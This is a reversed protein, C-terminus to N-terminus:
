GSRDYLGTNLGTEDFEAKDDLIDLAADDLDGSCAEMLDELLERKEEMKKWKRCVSLCFRKLALFIDTKIEDLGTDIIHKDSIITTVHRVEESLSPNVCISHM